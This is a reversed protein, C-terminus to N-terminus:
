NMVRVGDTNKRAAGELESELYGLRLLNTKDQLM